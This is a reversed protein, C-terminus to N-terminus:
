DPDPPPRFCYKRLLPALLLQLTETVCYILSMFAAAPHAECLLCHVSVSLDILNIYPCNLTSNCVGQPTGCQRLWWKAVVSQFGAAPHRDASRRRCLWSHEFAVQSSPGRCAM